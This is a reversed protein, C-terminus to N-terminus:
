FGFGRGVTVEFEAFVRMKKDLTLIVQDPNIVEVDVNGDIDGATIEGGKEVNLTLTVPERKHCNLLVKKLNLVIDTVDELVNEVSQFEHDIGDM